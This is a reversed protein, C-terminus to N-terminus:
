SAGSFPRIALWTQYLKDIIKYCRTLLQNDNKINAELLLKCTCAYLTNLHEAVGSGQEMNLSSRLGEILYIAHSIHRGKESVHHPQKLLDPRSMHLNASSIHEKTAELLLSILEFSSSQEVLSQLELLKYENAKEDYKTMKLVM